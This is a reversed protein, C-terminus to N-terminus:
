SYHLSLSRRRPLFFGLVGFVFLVPVTLKTFFWVTRAQLPNEGAMKNVQLLLLNPDEEPRILNGREPRVVRVSQSLPNGYLEAVPDGPSFLGRNVEVISPAHPAILLVEKGLGRDLVLAGLLLIVLGGFGLLFAPKRLKYKMGNAYMDM